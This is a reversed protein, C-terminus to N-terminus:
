FLTLTARRWRARPPALGAFFDRSHLQMAGARDRIGHMAREVEGHKLDRGKERMIGFLPYRNESFIM